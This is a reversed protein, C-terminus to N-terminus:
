LFCSMIYILLRIDYMYCKCKRIIRKVHMKGKFLTSSCNLYCDFHIKIWRWKTLLTCVSIHVIILSYMMQLSSYCTTLFSLYTTAMFVRTLDLSNFDGSISFRCLFNSRTLVMQLVFYIYAWRMFSCSHSSQQHIGPEM